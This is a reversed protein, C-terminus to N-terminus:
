VIRVKELCIFKFWIVYILKILLLFLSVSPLSAPQQGGSADPFEQL